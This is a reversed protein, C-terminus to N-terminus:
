GKPRVLERYGADSRLRELDIDTHLEIGFAHGEAFAQRLLDIARDPQDQQAAIRARWLSDRGFLFPRTVQGLERDVREAEESDGRRAALVGLRGRFDLNEPFAAALERFLAEAEVWAEALYLSRALDARAGARFLTDGAEHRSWEVSQRAYEAGDDRRGHARLELAALEAVRGWRWGPQPPQGRAQGLREEVGRLDGMAALARVECAVSSVRAPFRRRGAGAAELELDHSGLTHHAATLMEWYPHFHRVWGRTPDLSRYIELTEAPRNHELAAVGAVFHAVTGPYRRWVRTTRRYAEERDGRLRTRHWELSEAEYPSLRDHLADLRDLFPGVRDWQGLNQHAAAAFLLPRAFRDDLRSAEELEPIARSYDERLFHELGRSYAGYAEFTPPRSGLEPPNPLGRWDQDLLAALLGLARDRTRAVAGEVDDAGARVPEMMGAVEGREQDVVEGRVELEGSVLYYSGRVVFRANTPVALDAGEEAARLTELIPTISVMGTRDLGETIWDALMPGVPVLEDRGTRNRFPEVLVGPRSPAAAAAPVGSVGALVRDLGDAVEPSIELEDVAMARVFARYQRGAESRAGSRALLRILTAQADEELPSLEVWRRATAVALALEGAEELERLRAVAAAEHLRALRVRQRDIWVQIEHAELLRWGALFPGTYLNLAAAHNGRQVAEEFARADIAVGDSVVVAEGEARMWDGLDPRLRHLTQSLANRARAETLEPWFMGVLTDRTAEREMALFVLFSARVPQRRLGSVDRGGSLVRFRGLAAVEVVAAEASILSVNKRWGAAGNNGHLGASERRPEM